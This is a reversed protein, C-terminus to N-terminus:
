NLYYLLYQFFVGKLIFTEKINSFKCYKFHKVAAVLNQIKTYSQFCIFAIRITYKKYNFSYQGLVFSAALMGGHHGRM